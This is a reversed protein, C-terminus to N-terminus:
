APRRLPTATRLTDNTHNDPHLQGPAPNLAAGAAQAAEGPIVALRYAGIGFVDASAGRVRVYYDGAQAASFTVALDGALPDTASASAVARGTADFVTVEA